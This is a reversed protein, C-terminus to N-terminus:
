NVETCLLYSIIIIIHSINVNNYQLAYQFFIYYVHSAISGEVCKTHTIFNCGNIDRQQLTNLLSAPRFATTLSTPLPVVTCNNAEINHNILADM